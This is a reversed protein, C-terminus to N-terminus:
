VSIRLALAIAESEFICGFSVILESSALITTNPGLNAAMFLLLSLVSGCFM